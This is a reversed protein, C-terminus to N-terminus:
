GDIAASHLLPDFDISTLTVASRWWHEVPHDKIFGSGGLVQIADRAVREMAACTRSVTGCTLRDIETSDDLEDLQTAAQWLALRAGDVATDCDALLFAVGQFASIPKGFAIREQAYAAAYDQAARAAGIAIAPVTLRLRALARALEVGSAVLVADEDVAIHRVAIAGTHAARLGSNPTLRDDNGLVYGAPTGEFVFARLAGTATDTAIMISVDATGPNAAFFKEGNLVWNGNARAATAELEEAHRGWGEYYLVSGRGGRMLVPLFRAQQDPSGCATLLAAAHGSSFASYAIGPDGYALEEAAVVYELASLEGDGGLDAPAPTTVGLAGIRDALGPPIAGTEDSSRGAPRLERAAFETLVSRLAAQEATLDLDLDTM